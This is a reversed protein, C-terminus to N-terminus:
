PRPFNNGMLERVKSLLQNLPQNKLFVASVGSLRLDLRKLQDAFLTYLIIPAEPLLERLRPAAEVGNMVPMVLDLIVLDPKYNRALEIAEPGTCAERCFTFGAALFLDCLHARIAPSDDVILATKAYAPKSDIAM